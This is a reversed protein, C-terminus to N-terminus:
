QVIKFHRGLNLNEQGLASIMYGDIGLLTPDPKGNIPRHKKQIAQLFLQFLPSELNLTNLLHFGPGATIEELGVNIAAEPKLERDLNFEAVKGLTASAKVIARCGM